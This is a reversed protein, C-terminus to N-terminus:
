GFSTWWLTGLMEECVHFAARRALFWYWSVDYVRYLVWYVAADGLLECVECVIASEAGGIRRFHNLGEASLNWLGHCIAAVVLSRWAGPAGRQQAWGKATCATIMSHVVARFGSRFLSVEIARVQLGWSFLGRMDVGELEAAAFGMGIAWAYQLYHREFDVTGGFARAAVLFMFKYTEELLGAGIM